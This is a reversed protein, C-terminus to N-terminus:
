MWSLKFLIAKKRDHIQLVASKGYATFTYSTQHDKLWISIEPNLVTEAKKYSVYERIFHRHDLQFMQDM